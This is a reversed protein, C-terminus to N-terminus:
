PHLDVMSNRAESFERARAKADELRQFAELKQERSHSQWAVDPFPQHEAMEYLFWSPLDFAWSEGDPNIPPEITRSRRRADRILQITSRSERAYEYLVCIEFEGKPVETFDYDRNTLARPWVEAPRESKSSTKQNKLNPGQKLVTGVAGNWRVAAAKSRVNNQSRSSAKSM